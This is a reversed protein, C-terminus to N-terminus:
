APSINIKILAAESETMKKAWKGPVLGNWVFGISKAEDKKDFSINAIYIKRPQVAIEISQKLYEIKSFCNALLICDTLARHASVVPVDLDLSISVLDKKGELQWDFDNKTCIWPVTAKFNLKEELWKKDFEANHAVIYDYNKTNLYSLAIEQIEKPTSYCAEIKIKNIKEAGNIEAGSILTSFQSLITQHDVSYLIAAVEILCGKETELSTTETDVILLNM